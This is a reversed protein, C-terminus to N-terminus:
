NQVTFVGGNCSVQFSKIVLQMSNGRVQRVLEVQSITANAPDLGDCSPVKSSFASINVGTFPGALKTTAMQPQGSNGPVNGVWNNLATAFATNDQYRPVPASSSALASYDANHFTTTGAITTLQNRRGSRLIRIKLKSNDSFKTFPDSSVNPITVPYVRVRGTAYDPEGTMALCYTGLPQFYGVSATNYLEVLSGKSLESLYACDLPLTIWYASGEHLLGAPAQGDAQLAVAKELGARQRFEPYVWSAMVKETLYGGKFEDNEATVVPEGSFQDFLRNETTHVIGDQLTTVQRVIAPYRVVKSTAHTYFEAQTRTVSPFITAFPLVVVFLIALDTDVEFNVDVSNDKVAKSAMTLDVERGPFTETPTEGAESIVKIPKAVPTPADAVLRPPEYYSIRQESTPRANRTATESAYTGPYTAQRLLQGHMNNLIFSFGQTTWANNVQDTYLLTFLASFRSRQNLPTAKVQMPYQRATAYESVTYGPASQGSHINRVVVRSYGVSPGPLVGEGLPGEAQKRDLGYILKDVKSQSKRPLYEVLPNEERMSAPETTAVGSSIERGSAPDQVTYLYESGYLVPQGDVGQDYTLLRKVRLGGGKKAKVIPIRFYSLAPNLVPCQSSPNWVTRQWAILQRVVQGPNSGAPEGAGRIVPNCDGAPNLKGARQTQVFYQCAQKPLVDGAVKLQVRGNHLTVDTVSIYGSIFDSNCSTPQPIDVTGNSALQYLFKFYMKHGGTIYYDRIAQVTADQDVTGLSQAVDLEFTNTPSPDDSSLQVMAQAPRDQVYAYDDQEYQVHIQGGTPLTIVKLQWAAPDFQDPPLQNPWSQLNAYRTAGDAQYNGWADLNTAQYAPNQADDTLAEYQSVVEEAGQQYKNPYSTGARYKPYSYGFTYPSIKTKIGQYEFWVRKLTLKGGGNLANPLQACLENSYDFQVTKIPVAGAKATAIGTQQDFDVDTNAYLEIRQLYRQTLQNAPDATLSARPGGGANENDLGADRGDIRPQAAGDGITRSTEGNLVFIATHTKTQVSQLFVTEKEGSAVTGMDDLPDSLSNRQYLLGAYPIRWRYWQQGAGWQKRHVFKTYGGFDDATPGDLTRDVYDPTRTETLLFSTAYATSREEGVKVPLKEDSKGTTVLYLDSSVSEGPVGYQLNKEGRSLVPYGYIYEGGNATSVSMETIAGPQLLNQGKLSAQLQRLDERGSFPVPPRRSGVPVTHYDIYSSRAGTSQYNREQLLATVDTSYSLGLGDNHLQAAVPDDTQKDSTQRTGGLDNAFRFYVEEGQNDAISSSLPSSFDGNEKNADNQWGGESLTQEGAGIDGGVGFTTGVSAEPAINFILTSSSKKNPRFEGVQRHYLRFGGGIGEGSAMFNDANNFPVGLYQDRKNYPTEREVYYDSVSANDWRGNNDASYMFGLAQADDSPDNEQFSYSGSVNISQGIPVPGPNIQLGTSFNYSQGSYRSVHTPRVAESYSLPAHNGGLLSVRALQTRTSPLRSPDKDYLEKAKGMAEKHFDAFQNLVAAPSVSLSFSGQGDSINYGLSVVGKGLPIGVGANYGFGSYNNYRLAASLNATTQDKSFLEVGLGAGATITWNRPTKNWYKVPQKYYDDPFGRTNRTIAGPNLTWGYGVWSAEEEPTTGSHYALSLPYDSGNPGPVNLVPLNYSFDGSFEDVMKTTSVPEFSSFEPQAPGGTLALVKVPWALNSVTLGLLLWAIGRRKTSLYHYAM